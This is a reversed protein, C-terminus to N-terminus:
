EYHLWHLVRLLVPFGVLAFLLAWATVRHLLKSGDLGAAFAVWAGEETHRDLGLSRADDPMSPPAWPRPDEASHGPDGASELRRDEEM